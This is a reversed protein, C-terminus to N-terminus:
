PKLGWAAALADPTAGKRSVSERRYISGAWAEVWRFRADEGVAVREYFGSAAIRQALEEDTM